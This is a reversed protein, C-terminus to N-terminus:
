QSWVLTGRWWLWVILWAVNVISVAIMKIRFSTKRTKHRFVSMALWGGLLGSAFSLWLLWAEPIRRRECRARWKDWGFVVFTVVNVAAVALLVARLM